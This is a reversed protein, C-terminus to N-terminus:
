QPLKGNVGKVLVQMTLLDKDSASAGEAYLLKGDQASIPGAFIADEGKKLKEMEAM